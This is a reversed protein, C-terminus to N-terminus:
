GILRKAVEHGKESLSYRVTACSPSLNKVVLRRTLLHNLALIYVPRRSPDRAQTIAWASLPGRRELLLIIVSQEYPLGTLRLIESKAEQTVRM